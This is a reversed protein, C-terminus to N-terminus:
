NSCSCEEEEGDDSDTGDGGSSSDGPAPCSGSNTIGSTSVDSGEFITAEGDVNINTNRIVSNDCNRILIGDRDGTLHLCSNRITSGNRNEISIAPYPGSSSGTVSVNGLTVAWPEEPTIGLRPDKPDDARIAAVGDADMRFQSNYIAMRGASGDIRVAAATKAPASRYIFECDGIYGGAEGRNDTEWIIAHPNIFEGVNTEKANDTDVVFRCGRVYSHKGGIRISTQNNNVFLSDEVKVSGTPKRAYIANTGTNEIRSNRIILEGVHKDGVWVCGENVDGGLHGHSAIETPGIRVLGDVIAQGDPDLAQPSLNDVTGNSQTPNFGVFRVDQVRLNDDAKLMLGLNGSHDFGYDIALNEILIGDGGNTKLLFKATGKESVFRVDTPDDGLGRIGWNNVNSEAVTDEWFYTGPPFEILVDGEEITEDIASDIPENGNPDLGLDDVANVVREFSIGHRNADAAASGTMASLGTLGVAAATASMKLADRRNLGFGDGDVTRDRNEPDGREKESGVTKDSM